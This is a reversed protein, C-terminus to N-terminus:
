LMGGRLVILGVIDGELLFSSIDEMLKSISGNSILGDDSCECFDVSGECFLKGLCM